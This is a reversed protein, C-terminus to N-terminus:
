PVLGRFRKAGEEDMSTYATGATHYHGGRNGVRGAIAGLDQGGGRRRRAGGRRQVAM